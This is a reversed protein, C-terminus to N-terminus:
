DSDNWAEMSVLIEAHGNIITSFNSCLARESTVYSSLEGRLHFIILLFVLEFEAEQRVDEISCLVDVWSAMILIGLDKHIVETILILAGNHLLLVLCGNDRTQSDKKDEDVQSDKVVELTSTLEVLHLPIDLSDGWTIVSTLKLYSFLGVIVENFV